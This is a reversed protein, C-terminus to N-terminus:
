PARAATRRRKAALGMLALLGACLQVRAVPEPVLTITAFGRDPYYFQYFLNNLSDGSALTGTLTGTYIPGLDGYPVPAGNVAFDNGAIILTGSDSARLFNSVTGGSLIVTGSGSAGLWNGVAGGSMTITSTGVATIYDGVWGGSITMTSSDQSAVNGSLTGGSMVFTSLDSTNLSEAVTGGTMTLSATGNAEM